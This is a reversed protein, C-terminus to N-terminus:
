DSADRGTGAAQEPADKGGSFLMAGAFAWWCAQPLWARSRRRWDLLSAPQEEEVPVLMTGPKKATLVDNIGAVPMEILAAFEDISQPRDEMHLAARPRHGAAASPIARRCIEVLPKCTDQISRVVSVPPPSGILTRLVAGLAYITWPQESENDDTYQEIPLFRDCCPKRKTPLNGITRRASGFDLLVPLGNDQIQINDLSIDRHLYGEDHITKIAGFLM